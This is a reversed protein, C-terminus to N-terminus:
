HAADTGLRMIMGYLQEVTRSDRGPHLRDSIPRRPQRHGAALRPPGIGAPGLLATRLVRVRYRAVAAPMEDSKRGRGIWADMHGPGWDYAAVADPWDGYRRYLGALYARGLARNAALDFRDGGGADAAAAASVQMPGQPGMPDARWMLPDAGGSSEVADVALAIRALADDGGAFPTGGAAFPTGGAATGAAGLLAALLALGAGVPATRAL